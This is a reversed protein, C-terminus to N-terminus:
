DEPTDQYYVTYPSDPFLEELETPEVEEPEYLEKQTFQKKQEEKEELQNLAEDEDHTTVDIASKEM